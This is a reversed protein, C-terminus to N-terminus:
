LRNMHVQQLHLVCRGWPTWAVAKRGARVASSGLRQLRSPLARSGAVLDDLASPQKSVEM